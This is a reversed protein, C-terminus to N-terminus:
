ALDSPRCRVLWVHRCLISLPKKPDLEKIAYLKLVQLTTIQTLLHPKDWAPAARAALHLAGIELRHM